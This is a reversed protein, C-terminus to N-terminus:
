RAIEKMQYGREAIQKKVQNKDISDDVELTVYHNGDPLTFWLAGPGDSHWGIAALSQVEEYSPQENFMVCLPQEDPHKPLPLPEKDWLFLKAELQEDGEIRTKGHLLVLEGREFSLTQAPKGFVLVTISTTLDELTLLWMDKGRKTEKKEVQTLVGGVVVRQDEEYNVLRELDCTVKQSLIDQVGEVPHGSVYMGLESYETELLYRIDEYSLSRKDDSQILEDFVGAAALHSLARRDLVRLPVRRLFDYLSRFRGSERAELIATVVKSGVGDISDLGFVITKDDEVVFEHQSRNVSPPIINLGMRRCENIYPGMEEKTKTTTLLAAMYDAPYNAKLYTTQYTITSYSASHGKVFGYAGFGEIADFVKHAEEDSLGSYEKCGAAFKERMDPIKNKQKKAVCNHVLFDEVIAYPREKNIMSFDFCEVKGKYKIEKVTDWVLDGHALDHLQESYIIHDVNKKHYMRYDWFNGSEIGLQRYSCGTVKQRRQAEEQVITSPIGIKGNSNYGTAEWRTSFREFQAIKRPSLYRNLSQALVICAEKDFIGVEWYYDDYEELYDFSLYSVIGLRLLMRKLGEVVNKSKSAFHAGANDFWGDCSMYYGLFIITKRLPLNILRNSIFKDGAKGKGVLTSLRPFDSRSFRQYTVGGSVNIAMIDHGFFTNFSKRFADLVFEDTSCFYPASLYGNAILLAAICVLDDSMEIGGYTRTQNAVAIPDGVSFHRLELWKDDSFFEHDLTASMRYGTATLIEYVDKDGVSWVDEVEGYHSIGTSDDIIQVSSDALNQVDEIPKYGRSRTLVQSGKPICKRLEEAGTPSFGAVYKAADLIQEQYLMLGYTEKLSEELAPHLPISEKRGNKREVYEKDIGAGLPGPRYLAILATIDYINSPSISVLLDRMQPSEIQFIGSVYGQQLLRFTASDDYTTLDFDITEGLRQQVNEIARGITTLNALGLYDMKLLGVQEVRDDEWQTVIPGPKGSKDPRQMVPIHETMESQSIVIGGAHIGPQRVVGEIGRANDIIDQVEDDEAYSQDLEKSAELAEDISYTFGQVPDPIMNAVEDGKQYPYGLVRAVDRIAGKAKSRAYTGIHAVHDDGYKERTYNIVEERRDDAIDLDIDPVSSRGENLFREFRLAFYLPDIKTIGLAYSCISSAASGRPGTRIGQQDCWSIVDAVILFYEVFGMRKIVGMEYEAREQADDPIPDGYKQRLGKYVEQEFYETPDQQTPVEFHPFYLEGFDLELECTEAVQSTNKLWEEPFSKAMEDYSPLYFGNSPFQFRNEDQIKSGTGIALLIDHTKAEEPCAYHCDGTPTIPADLHKSLEVLHKMVYRQDELGHDQVEIFFSDKGVMEQMQGATELAYQFDDRMIAQCIKSNLCGSLIILGDSYEDLLEMDIRPKSYFGQTYALSSLNMLNKYGTYNKALVTLHHPGSQGFEDTAKKSSREIEDRHYRTQRAQYFEEGIIPKIGYKKGAEYFDIAGGMHGHDTLALASMGLESARKMYAEASSLGDLFSYSSHTHLNVFDGM